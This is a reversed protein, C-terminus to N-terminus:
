IPQRIALPYGQHSTPLIEEDKKLRYLEWAVKGPATIVNSKNITRYKTGLM